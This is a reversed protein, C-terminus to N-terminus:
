EVRNDPNTSHHYEARTSRTTLTTSRDRSRIRDYDIESGTNVGYAGHNVASHDSPVVIHDNNERSM